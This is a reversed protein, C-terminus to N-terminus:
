YKSKRYAFVDREVDFITCKDPSRFLLVIGSPCMLDIADDGIRYFHADHQKSNSINISGWGYIMGDGLFYKEDVCVKPIYQVGFEFHTYNAGYDKVACGAPWKYPKGLGMALSYKAVPPNNIQYILYILYFFAIVVIWALVIRARPDDSSRFGNYKAVM